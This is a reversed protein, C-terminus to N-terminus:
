QPLSEPPLFAPNSIFSSDTLTMLFAKLDNKEEENLLNGGTNLHHMLPNVYPSYQLGESYFDIVEDLTNFRGDRMYPATLAINRLTPAKYAGHDMPDGTLAFRDYPDTFVTDLANNYFLNTTFLPNGAAGHCHFCDAGEETVFLVYGALESATLQEEGRLYRDFKADASILTRVFQAISKVIRDKNVEETGFAAKFYPRYGDIASIAAVAKEWTSNMERPHTITNEVVEEISRAAGNWGFTGPNWVLNILPLMAHHTPLSDLGLPAPRPKGIIFSNEPLHCSACSMYKGEDARGAIRGDYFLLRGLTIGEVTMPNDEPINLKTPFHPPIQITYPTAQFAPRLPPEDDRNCATLFVLSLIWATKLMMRAYVTERNKRMFYFDKVSCRFVFFLMVKRLNRLSFIGGPFGGAVYIGSRKKWIM